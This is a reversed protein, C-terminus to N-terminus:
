KPAKRISRLACWEFNGCWLCLVTTCWRRHPPPDYMRLRRVLTDAATTATLMQKCKCKHKRKLSDFELHLCAPKGLINVQIQFSSDSSYYTQSTGGASSTRQFLRPLIVLTRSAQLWSQPRPRLSLPWLSRSRFSLGSLVTLKSDGEWVLVNSDPRLERLALPWKSSTVSTAWPSAKWTHVLSVGYISFNRWKCWKSSM